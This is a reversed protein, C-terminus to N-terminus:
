KEKRNRKEKKPKNNMVRAVVLKVGLWRGPYSITRVSCSSFPPDLQSKFEGRVVWWPLKNDEFLMLLLPPGTSSGVAMKVADGMAM